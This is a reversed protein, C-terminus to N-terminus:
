FDDNAVESRLRALAKMVERVAQEREASPRIVERPESDDFQDPAFSLPHESELEEEVFKVLHEEIKATHVVAAEIADVAIELREEASYEETSILIQPKGKGASLVSGLTFLERPNEIFPSVKKSVLKGSRVQEQVQSAVWELGKDRLGALLANYFETRDMRAM